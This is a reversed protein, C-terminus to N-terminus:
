NCRFKESDSTAPECMQAPWRTKGFGFPRM